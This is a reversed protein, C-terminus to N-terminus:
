AAEAEPTKEDKLLERFTSRAGDFYLYCEGGADYRAKEVRCLSFPSHSGKFGTSGKGVDAAKSQIRRRYFLIVVDSDQGISSSDKLDQLTMARESDDFKRPQAILFIPINLEIALEKLYKTLISIEQQVKDASRVFYNLNDFAIAKFGHRRHAARVTKDIEEVSKM